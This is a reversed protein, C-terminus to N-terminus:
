YRVSSFFSFSTKILIGVFVCSSNDDQLCLFLTLLGGAKGGTFGHFGTLHHQSLFCFCWLRIIVSDGSFWCVATQQEAEEEEEKKEEEKKEEGRHRKTLVM